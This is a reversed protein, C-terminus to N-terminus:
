EWEVRTKSTGVIGFVWKHVAKCRFRNLYVLCRVYIVTIQSKYAYSFKGSSSGSYGNSPPPGGRNVPARAVAQDSWPVPNGLKTGVESGKAVVDLQLIIM